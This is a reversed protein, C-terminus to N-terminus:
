YRQSTTVIIYMKCVPFSPEFNLFTGLMLCRFLAFSTSLFLDSHDLYMSEM